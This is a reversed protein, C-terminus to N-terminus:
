PFITFTLFTFIPMFSTSVNSLSNASAAPAMSAPLATLCSLAYVKRIDFGKALCKGFFPQLKEVCDFSFMRRRYVAQGPNQLSVNFVNRRIDTKQFLCSKDISFLLGALFNCGVHIVVLYQQLYRHLPIGSDALALIAAKVNALDAATYAM